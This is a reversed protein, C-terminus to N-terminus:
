KVAALKQYNVKAAYTEIDKAKIWKAAFQVAIRKDVFTVYILNEKKKRVLYQRGGVTKVTYSKCIRASQDKLCRLNFPPKKWDPKGGISIGIQPGLGGGAKKPRYVKRAVIEKQFASNSVGTILKTTKWGNLPKPLFTGFKAAVAKWEKMDAKAPGSAIGLVAATTSAALVVAKTFCHM